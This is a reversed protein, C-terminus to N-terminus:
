RSPSGWNAWEAFWGLTNAWGWRRIKLQAVFADPAEDVWGRHELSVRTGYPIADFRIEVEGVDLAPGDDSYRFTLRRGPEWATIRGLEMLQAGHVELWRGDIGSEFRIGVGIEDEFTQTPGPRWWREVEETFVTFATPPDLTVELSTKVSVDGKVPLM